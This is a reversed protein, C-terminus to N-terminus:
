TSLTAIHLYCHTPRTKDALPELVGNGKTGTKTGLSLNDACVLFCLQTYTAHLLDLERLKEGKTLTHKLALLGM